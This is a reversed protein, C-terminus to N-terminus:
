AKEKQKKNHETIKKNNRCNPVFNFYFMCKSNRCSSLCDSTLSITSVGRSTASLVIFVKDIYDFITVCKSVKKICLKRQNIESNFYNETGIIEGPRYKKQESLTTKNIENM